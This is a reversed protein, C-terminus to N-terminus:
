YIDSNTNIQRDLIDRRISQPVGDKIFVRPVRKNVMCTIEYNITGLANALVDASINNGFLEVEDYLSVAEVDTLDIMCQDMCISGVVPVLQGSIFVRARGNLMRTYGDAYGIPLTGIIRDEKAVFCNGYSVTEGPHLTKLHVITSKLTMVPKLGIKSRDVEASPYLGYLIIGPRVMDFHVGEVDFIGASNAMHKIPIDINKEALEMLVQQYRRIQEQTHTKDAADATSFHTYLGQLEIGALQNMADIMQAAERWGIGIRGMGTDIKIHIPHCIGIELCHDSLAQAFDMQYVGPIVDWRILDPIHEKATFGLLLIQETIGGQRLAIAEDIFAVALMDVGADCLTQACELSGHGYADAKVVGLIKVNPGVIRRIEEYNSTLADLDIEAWTPRLALDNM